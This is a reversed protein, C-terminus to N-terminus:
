KAPAGLADRRAKLERWATLIIGEEKVSRGACINNAARRAV